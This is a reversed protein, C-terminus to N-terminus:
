IEKLITYNSFIISIDVFLLRKKNRFEKSLKLQILALESYKKM